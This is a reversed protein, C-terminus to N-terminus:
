ADDGGTKRRQWYGAVVVAFTMVVFGYHVKEEFGELPSQMQVLFLPLAIFAALQAVLRLLLTLGTAYNKLQPSSEWSGPRLGAIYKSLRHILGDEVYYLSALVLAIPSSLALAEPLPTSSEAGGLKVGKALGWLIAQALLQLKLWGDRHKVRLLLEERATRSWEILFDKSDSM